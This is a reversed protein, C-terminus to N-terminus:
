SSRSRSRGNLQNFRRAAREGLATLPSATVRSQSDWGLRGPGGVPPSQPLLRNMLSLTRATLGPFLPALRAVVKAQPTLILEPKGRRAARVIRRAAREAPMSVGPLTAGLAFWTFEASSDGRFWGNLHSGTRMLGPVVTTVKIGSRALEARLGESFGVAAFKASNYPLLHPASLKGGISTITVIRGTRRPRMLPLVALTPHVVGWFMVDMAAHFDEVRQTEVPGVSIIGANNVLVDITGYRAVTADVLRQVDEADGVDCSTALVEAGFGELDSKAATLQDQSRSCIALRAGRRAFERGLALGLGRSGGTILVVKGDLDLMRLRRLLLGATVAAGASVGAGALMRRRRDDSLWDTAVAAPSTM